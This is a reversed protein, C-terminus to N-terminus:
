ENHEPEEMGSFWGSIQGIAYVAPSAMFYVSCLEPWRSRRRWREAAARESRDPTWGREMWPSPSVVM